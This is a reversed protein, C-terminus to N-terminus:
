GGQRMTGLLQRDEELRGQLEKFLEEERKVFEEFESVGRPHAMAERDHRGMPLGRYGALEKALAHLQRGIERHQRAVSAYADLERRSDADTLNLARTHLELVEAGSAMLDGFKAPITSYRALGTGCTPVVEMHAEEADTSGGTRASQRVTFTWRGAAAEAVGRDTAV